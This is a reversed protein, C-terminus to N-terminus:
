ELGEASREVRVRRAFVGHILRADEVLVQTFRASTM